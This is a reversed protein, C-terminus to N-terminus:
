AGTRWSRRGSSRSRGSSRALWLTARRPRAQVLVGPPRACGKASLRWLGAAVAGQGALRVKAVRYRVTEAFAEIFQASPAVQLIYAEAEDRRGETAVVSLVYGNGFRTKLRESTGLCRMRGRTVIGVGARRVLLRAFAPM